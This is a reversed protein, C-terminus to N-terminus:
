EAAFTEILPHSAADAAEDPEAMIENIAAAIREYKARAGEPYYITVAPSSYEGPGKIKLANIGVSATIKDEVFFSTEYHRM